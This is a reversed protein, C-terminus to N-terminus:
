EQRFGQLLSNFTAKQIAQRECLRRYSLKKGEVFASWWRVRWVPINNYGNWLHTQLRVSLLKKEEKALLVATKSIASRAPGLVPHSRMCDVCLPLRALSKRARCMHCARAMVITHSNTLTRARPRPAPLKMGERLQRWMPLDACVRRLRKNVRAVKSLSAPPLNSLLRQVLHDAAPLPM